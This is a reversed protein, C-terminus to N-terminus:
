ARRHARMEEGMFWSRGEDTSEYGRWRFSDPAIEAFTWRFLANWPSRGELWIEDDHARAILNVTAGYIPAIYTVRWADIKPDYVRLTSGYEKSAQGPQRGARPPSALVDQVARGELAWGFLWEARGEKVLGKEPEFFQSEIDWAGVFRGFLMLKDAYDPFPGDAALADLM